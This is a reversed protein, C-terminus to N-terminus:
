RVEKWSVQSRGLLDSSGLDLLYQPMYIIQEAPSTSNDAGLNRNLAFSHAILSGFIYLPSSGTGTNVVGNPSTGAAYFIGYINNVTGAVSIDKKVIFALSSGCSTKYGLPDGSVTDNTFSRGILLDNDVFIVASFGLDCPPGDGSAITLDGEVKYVRNDTTVGSLDTITQTTADDYGYMTQLELYTPFYIGNYGTVVWSRASVALPDTNPNPFSISGASVVGGGSGTSYACMTKEPTYAPAPESYEVRVAELIPTDTGSSTFEMRYIFNATTWGLASLSIEVGGTGVLDTWNSGAVCNKLANCWTSGGDNSFQVRLGSGLASANYWFSDVSAVSKDLLLNTSTLTGSTYYAASADDVFGVLIIVSAFTILFLKKIM